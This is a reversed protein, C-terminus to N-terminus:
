EINLDYGGGMVYENMTQLTNYKSAISGYTDFRAIGLQRKSERYTVSELESWSSMADDANQNWCARLMPLGDNLLRSEGNAELM